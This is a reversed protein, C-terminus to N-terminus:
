LQMILVLVSSYCEKTEFFNHIYWFMLSGFIVLIQCYFGSNSQFKFDEWHEDMLSILSLLFNSLLLKLRGWSLCPKYNHYTSFAFQVLRFFLCLYIFFEMYEKLWRLYHLSIWLRITPLSFIVYSAFKLAIFNCSTKYERYHFFCLIKACTGLSSYLSIFINARPCSIRLNDFFSTALQAPSYLSEEMIMPIEKSSFKYNIVFRLYSASTLRFLSFVPQDSLYTISHWFDAWFNLHMNKIYDDTSSQIINMVFEGKVSIFISKKIWFYAM